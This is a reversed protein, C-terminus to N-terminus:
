RFSQLSRYYHFGILLKVTSTTPLQKECSIVFKYDASKSSETTIVYNDNKDTEVNSMDIVSPWMYYKTLGTDTGDDLFQTPVDVNYRRKYYEIMYKQRERLNSAGTHDYLDVDNKTAKVGLYSPGSYYM